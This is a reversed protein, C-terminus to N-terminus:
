SAHRSPLVSKWIFSCYTFIFFMAELQLSAVLLLFFNCYSFCFIANFAEDGAIELFGLCNRSFYTFINKLHKFQWMLSLLNLSLSSFSVLFDDLVSDTCCAPKLATCSPGSFCNGNEATYGLAVCCFHNGAEDAERLAGEVWGPPLRLAPSQRVVSLSMRERGM